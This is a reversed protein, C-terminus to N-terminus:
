GSISNEVFEILKTLKTPVIDHEWISIVRWGYRRLISRKKRDRNRNDDIKEQWWDSNAKPTEFHKPCGHWYCGDVFICVKARRFVIDAKCKLAAEPHVNKRFRLGARHLASCLAIEPYTGSSINAQM